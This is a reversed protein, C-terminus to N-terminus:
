INIPVNVYDFGDNLLLQDREEYNQILLDVSGDGDVVMMLYYSTSETDMEDGQLNIKDHVSPFGGNLFDLSSDGDVDSKYYHM